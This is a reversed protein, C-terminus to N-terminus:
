DLPLNRIDTGYFLTERPVSGFNSSDDFLTRKYKVAVIKNGGFTM